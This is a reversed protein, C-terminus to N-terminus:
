LELFEKQLDENNDLHDFVPEKERRVSPSENSKQNSNRQRITPYTMETPKPAEFDNENESIDEINDDQDNNM